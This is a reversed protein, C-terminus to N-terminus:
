SCSPFMEQVWETLIAPNLFCLTLDKGPWYLLPSRHHLDFCGKGCPHLQVPWPEFPLSHPIWQGGLIGAIAITSLSSPIEQLNCAMVKPSRLPWPGLENALGIALLSRGILGPPIQPALSHLEIHFLSGGWLGRGVGQCKGVLCTPLHYMSLARVWMCLLLLSLVGETAGIGM